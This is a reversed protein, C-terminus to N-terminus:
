EVFALGALGSMIRLINYSRAYVHIQGDTEKLFSKDYNVKLYPKEIMSFNCSGTPQLENNELSFSIVNIGDSPTSLYKEYPVIYNTYEGPYNNFRQRGNFELSTSIIPNGGNLITDSNSFNNRDRLYIDKNKKLVYIIDKINNKFSLELNIQSLNPYLTKSSNYQTQEILYEHRSEAFLKRETDDLYIYNVLLSSKIDMKGEIEVGYDKRVLMNIDEIFLSLKIDVYPMAIIPINYGSKNCFWFNMPIYLTKSSKENNDMVFIEELNGILKNYGKQKNNSINLNKWLNIWESKQSDILLDNFYLDTNKIIYNGLDGVWSYKPIDPRNLIQQLIDKNDKIKEENININNNMEELKLSIQNYLYEDDDINRNIILDLINLRLLDYESNEYKLYSTHDDYFYSFSGNIYKNLYLHFIDKFFEKKTLNRIKGTLDVNQKIEDIFSDVNIDLTMLQEVIINTPLIQVYKTQLIEKIFDFDIENYEIMYKLENSFSRFNRIDDEYIPTIKLKSDDYDYYYKTKYRAKRQLLIRKDDYFEITEPLIKRKLKLYDGKKYKFGTESVDLKIRNNEYYIKAEGSIGSGGGLFLIENNDFGYTDTTSSPLVNTNINTTDDFPMYTSTTSPTSKFFEGIIYPFQPNDNSDITIFYAYTGMPYEPTYVIKGNYKDLHGLGDVYEYDEIFSGLEYDIDLRSSSVSTKLRYSSQMRIVNTGDYGYPGYIPYGDLSLGLIKSHGDRHRFINGNYNTALYYPTDVLLNNYNFLFKSSFIKYKKVLDAFGGFNDADFNEYFKVVNWSYGEPPSILSTSNIQPIGEDYYMSGFIIGNFLVGIDYINNNWIKNVPNDDDFSDPQTGARITINREFNQPYVSNLEIFENYLIVNSPVSNCYLSLINGSDSLKIKVQSRQNSFWIKNIDFPFILNDVITGYNRTIYLKKLSGYEDVEEVFVTLDQYDIQNYENDTMVIGYKFKLNLTPDNLTANSLNTSIYDELDAVMITANTTQYYDIIQKLVYYDLQSIDKEILKNTNSLNNIFNYKELILDYNIEDVYIDSSNESFYKHKNINIEKFYENASDLDTSKIYKNANRSLTLGRVYYLNKLLATLINEILMYKKFESEIELTISHLTLLKNQVSFIESFGANYINIDVTDLFNPIDTVYQKIKNETENPDEFVNSEIDFEVIKLLNRNAYYNNNDNTVQSIINSLNDLYLTTESVDLSHIENINLIVSEIKNRIIDSKFVFDSNIYTYFEYGIDEPNKLFDDILNIYMESNYNMGKIIHFSVDTDLYENKLYSKMIELLEDKTFTESGTFNYTINSVTKGELFLKIDTIDITDKIIDFLINIISNSNFFQTYNACYTIAVEKTLKEFELNYSDIDCLEYIKTLINTVGFNIKQLKDKNVITISQGFSGSTTEQNLLWFNDILKFNFSSSSDIKLKLTTDVNDYSYDTVVLKATVSTNISDYLYYIDGINPVQTTSNGDDWNKLYLGSFKVEISPISSLIENCVKILYYNYYINVYVYGRTTTTTTTISSFDNYTNYINTIEAYSNNNSKKVLMYNEQIENDTFGSNITCILTTQVLPSAITVKSIVTVESIATNPDPPLIGNNPCILYVDDVSSPNNDSLQNSSYIIGISPKNNKLYEIQGIKTLLNNFEGGLSATIYTDCNLLQNNIFSNLDVSLRNLLFYRLSDLKIYNIGDINKKFMNAFNELTNPEIINKISSGDVIKTIQDINYFTSIYMSNKFLSSIFNHVLHFNNQILKNNTSRVFDMFDNNSLSNLYNSNLNNIYRYNTLIDSNILTIEGINLIQVGDSFIYSNLYESTLAKNETIECILTLQDLDIYIIKYYSDPYIQDTNTELFAFVINGVDLGIPNNALEISIKKTITNQTIQTITYQSRNVGSKVPTNSLYKLNSIFKSEIINYYFNYNYEEDNSNTNKIVVKKYVNYISNNIDETLSIYITELNSEIVSDQKSIKFIYSLSYIHKSVIKRIEITELLDIGKSFSNSLDFLILAEINVNTIISNKYYEFLRALFLYPSQLTIEDTSTVIKHLCYVFYSHYNHCYPFNAYMYYLYLSDSLGIPTYLDAHYIVNDDYKFNSFISDNQFIIISLSKELLKSSKIYYIINDNRLNSYFFYRNKQLVVNTFEQYVDDEIQGRLNRPWIPYTNTMFYAYTLITSTGDSLNIYGGNFEDLNGSGSSYVYDYHYYGSGNKASPHSYDTRTIWSSSAIGLSNGSYDLVTSGNGIIPTGDLAYGIVCNEYGTQFITGTHMHWDGDKQVHGGYSDLQLDTIASSTTGLFYRYFYGPKYYTGNIENPIFVNNDKNIYKEDWFQNASTLTLYDLPDDSNGGAAAPLPDLIVAELPINTDSWHTNPTNFRGVIGITFMQSSVNDLSGNYSMFSSKNFEGFFYSYEGSPAYTPNTPIRLKFTRKSPKNSNVSSYSDWNDFTPWNNTNIIRLNNDISISVGDYYNDDTIVLNYFQQNVEFFNNLNSVNRSIITYDDYKIDKISNENLRKNYEEYKNRAYKCKLKPLDFKVYINDLLDGNKPIIIDSKKGFKIQEKFLIKNSFKSFNTHRHYIKKFFTLDPKYTLILDENGSSILQILGGTM